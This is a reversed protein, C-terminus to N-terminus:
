AFHEETYLLQHLLSNLDLAFQAGNVLDRLQILECLTLRESINYQPTEIYEYDSADSIDLLKSKIDIKNVDRRFKLFDQIKFHARLSGFSVIIRNTRDCQTIIGKSNQYLEITSLTSDVSPSSQVVSMYLDFIIPYRCIRKYTFCLYSLM